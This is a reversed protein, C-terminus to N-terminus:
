RNGALAPRAAGSWEPPLNVGGSLALLFRELQRADEDSIELGTLEGRDKAPVSRYHDIVASLTAASGDHFFPATRDLGRLTPTKFAGVKEGLAARNMFRLEDCADSVIGSYPGLCNFEDLLLSQAGLYRGLDPVLGSGSTGIAHFSQNTLLPGNHCQLCQTRGVDIFLRLGAREDLDLISDAGELDGVRVHEVYEDFRSRGPLILRQYAELVRGLNAFAHNVRDRQEPSLNHWAQKSARDGYPGAKAPWGEASSFDPLRGFLTEYQESYVRDTTMLRVAELRTLGLENQAEIPALAQSWLSDRRGDWFLWTAYGVGILTQSNRSTASIGISTPRQDTFNFDPLHCSACSLSSNASLRKEFFLAHGLARAIPEDAVPNAPNPPLDPLETLSLSQILSWEHPSWSAPASADQAQNPRSGSSATEKTVSPSDSESGCSVVGVGAIVLVLVLLDMTGLRQKRATLTASPGPRCETRIDSDSM